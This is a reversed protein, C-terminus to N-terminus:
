HGTGVKMKKPATNHGSCDGVKSMQRAQPSDKSSQVPSTQGAFAHCRLGRETAVM